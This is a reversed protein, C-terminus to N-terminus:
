LVVGTKGDDEDDVGSDEEDENIGDNNQRLENEMRAIDDKFLRIRALLSAKQEENKKEPLFPASGREEEREYRGRRM